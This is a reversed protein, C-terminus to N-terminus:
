SDYSVSTERKVNITGDGTKPLSNDSKVAACETSATQPCWPTGQEDMEGTRTLPVPSITTRSRSWLKAEDSNDEAEDRSSLEYAQGSDAEGRRKRNKSVTTSYAQMTQSPELSSAQSLFITPLYRVFFPKLAPVCACVIGLNCEVTGWINQGACDWTWDSSRLLGPLIYTRYIAIGCVFGGTAFLVLLSAKQMKPMQLPVVVGVPLLLITMDILINAVSLTMMLSFKDVCKGTISLDWQASVPRCLFISMLIYSTTHLSTIILLTYVARRFIREPSLRLYLALISLKAFSVCSSYSITIGLNAALYAIFNDYLVDWVHLGAGLKVIHISLCMFSISGAMSITVLYDDWGLGRRIVYIRTFMRLSLILLAAITTVIAVPVIGQGRFPPNVTVRIEGDPPEAAYMPKTSMTKPLVVAAADADTSNLNAYFQCWHM